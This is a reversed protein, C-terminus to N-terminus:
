LLYSANTGQGNVLLELDENWGLATGDTGRMAVIGTNSGDNINVTMAAWQSNMGESSQMQSITCEAYRDSHALAELLAKDDGAMDADLLAQAYETVTVTRGNYGGNPYVDEFRSYSLKAFLLADVENYNAATLRESNGAAYGTLSTESM